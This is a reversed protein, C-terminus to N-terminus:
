GEAKVATLERMKGKNMKGGKKGARSALERDYFFSRKEPSVSKGGKKGAERALDRNKYFSRTEASHSKGGMSAIERQKEKDMLAFGMIQKEM